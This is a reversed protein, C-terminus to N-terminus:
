IQVHRYIAEDFLVGITVDIFQEGVAIIVADVVEPESSVFLCPISLM